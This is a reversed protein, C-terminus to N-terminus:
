PILVQAAYIRLIDFLVKKVGATLISIARKEYAKEAESPSVGDKPGLAVEFGKILTARSSWIYAALLACVTFVTSTLYVYLPLPPSHFTM